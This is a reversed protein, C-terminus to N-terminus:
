DGAWIDKKRPSLIWAGRTSTPSDKVMITHPRPSQGLCKVANGLKDGLSRPSQVSAVMGEPVWLHPLQNAYRPDVRDPAYPPTM